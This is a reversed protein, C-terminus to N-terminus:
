GKVMHCQGGPYKNKVQRKMGATIHAKNNHPEACYLTIHYCAPYLGIGTITLVDNSNAHSALRSAAFGMIICGLIARYILQGSPWVASCAVVLLLSRLDRSNRTPQHVAM